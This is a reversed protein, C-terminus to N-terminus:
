GRVAEAAAIRGRLSHARAETIDVFANISGNRARIDALVHEIRSTVSMNM